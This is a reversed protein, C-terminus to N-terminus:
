SEGDSELRCWMCGDTEGSANVVSDDEAVVGGCLPCAEETEARKSM